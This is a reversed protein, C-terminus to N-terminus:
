IGLRNFLQVICHDPLLYYDEILPDITSINTSEIIKDNLHTLFSPVIIGAWKPVLSPLKNTRELRFPTCEKLFETEVLPAFPIESIPNGNSLYSFKDTRVYFFLNMGVPSM